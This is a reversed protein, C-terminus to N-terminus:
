RHQMNQQQTKSALKFAHSMQRSECKFSQTVGSQLATNAADAAATIDHEKGAKRVLKTTTPPGQRRQLKKSCAPCDPLGCFSTLFAPM